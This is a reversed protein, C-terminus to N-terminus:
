LLYGPFCALSFSCPNGSLLRTSWVTLPTPYFPQSVSFTRLAQCAHCSDPLGGHIQNKKGDDNAEEKYM